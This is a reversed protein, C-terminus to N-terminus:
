GHQPPVCPRQCIQGCGNSCCKDDGECDEDAYCVHDCIGFDGPSPCLGRKAKPKPGCVRGCGNFCCKLNGECQSDSFCETVCRIARPDFNTKPKPCVGPKEPEQLGSWVGHGFCFLCLLSFYPHHVSPLGVRYLATGM